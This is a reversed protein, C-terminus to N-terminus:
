GRQSSAYSLAGGCHVCGDCTLITGDWSDGVATRIFIFLILTQKLLYPMIINGLFLISSVLCRTPIVRVFLYVRRCRLPLDSDLCLAQCSIIRSILIQKTVQFFSFNTSNSISWGGSGRAWPPGLGVAEFTRCDCSLQIQKYNGWPGILRATGSVLRRWKSSTSWRVRDSSRM